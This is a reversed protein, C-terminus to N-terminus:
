IYKTVKEEIYGEEIKLETFKEYTEVIANILKSKENCCFLCVLLDSLPRFKHYDYSKQAKGKKVLGHITPDFNYTVEEYEVHITKGCKCTIM